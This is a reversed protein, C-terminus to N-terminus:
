FRYDCTICRKRGEGMCTSCRVTRNNLPDSQRGTGWCGLCQNYGHDCHPCPVAGGGHCGNCTLNGSGSCNNCHRERIASIFDAVVANFKGEKILGCVASQQLYKERMSQKDRALEELCGKENSFRPSNSDIKGAVTNTYSSTEIDTYISWLTDIRRFRYREDQLEPKEGITGFIKELAKKLLRQGADSGLDSPLVPTDM